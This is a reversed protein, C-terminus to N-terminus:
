AGRPTEGSNRLFPLVREELFAETTQIRATPNMATIPEPNGGALSLEVYLRRVDELFSEVRVEAQYQEGEAQGPPFMLRLGGGLIPRGFVALDETAQGLRQEWLYQFSHDTSAAFLSRVGTNWGLVFEMEPWIDRAVDTVEHAADAFDAASAVPSDQGIATAIVIQSVPVPEPGGGGVEGTVVQVQLSWPTQRALLFGADGHEAHDFRVDEEELRARFAAFRQEDLELAPGILFGVTFQITQRSHEIM